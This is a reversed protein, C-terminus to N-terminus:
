WKNPRLIQPFSTCGVLRFDVEWQATNTMVLIFAPSRGIVTHRGRIAVYELRFLSVSIQVIKGPKLM